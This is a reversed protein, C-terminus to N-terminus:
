ATMAQLNADALQRQWIRVNKITGFWNQGGGTANGIGIAVSGMDGDFSGTAVAAGDGTISMTTGGWSSARKRVGTALSTLGSKQVVQTGDVIRIVTAAGGNPVNLVHLNNANAFTVADHVAAATATAWLSSLEAYCAGAAANANGAFAYTLVDANRTVTATTTPIYSSAFTAAELQAGWFYAGSAGDGDYTIDNDAEALWMLCSGAAAATAAASTVTCRYWGNPYAQISALASGTITGIAGASLNFYAAWTTTGDFIAGRIWNREGAKAFFSYTHVVNTFTFNQQIAHTNAATADEVLKDATVAGDPSAIANVTETSRTNVWTTALDESQLCLNTRAGEALYGMYALSTPDYYSRAVGSAVPVILGTSNVTTATTARTFTASTGRIPTTNVAGAGADNLPLIFSATSILDDLYTRSGRGVPSGYPVILSRGRLLARRHDRELV